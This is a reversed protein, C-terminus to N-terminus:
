PLTVANYVIRAIQGRTAYNYPRFTGDSYGSIIGYYYATEIYTYFPHDPPVDTFTPTPPTYPPRSLAEVVIKSLQGRTVANYPRFTRDAYGSVLGEHAATEVYAYFPHDAPVDTFTPLPPVYISLGFGLVVIKTLQGRITNNYPRFTNDNYGSIVDRCFLYRVPEYFYDTPQVDPFTMACPTSSATSTSTSTSTSTALPTTTGIATAVATPTGGTACTIGAGAVSVMYSACTDGGFLPEVEVVFTSSAPVNFQYSSIGATGRDMAGLFNTCLNNPDFSGLYASSFLDIGECGTADITVTVCQASGSTNNFTYVDYNTTDFFEVPCPNARACTDPVGDTDLVPYHTPDSNTISGTVTCDAPGVPLASNGGSDALRRPAEDAGQIPLGATQGTPVGAFTVGAALWLSLLLAFVGLIIHRAALKTGRASNTM